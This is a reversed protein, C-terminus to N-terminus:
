KIKDIVNKKFKDYNLNKIKTPITMDVPKRCKTVLYPHSDIYTVYNSVEKVDNTKPDVVTEKEVKTYWVFSAKACLGYSASNMLNPIVKNFSPNEEDQVEKPLCLVVINAGTKKHLYKCMNWISDHGNKAQGWLNLNMQDKNAEVMVYKKLLYELQTASDFVITSYAVPVKNGNEDVTYGKEIDSLIEDVEEFASIEVVQINERNATPISGTGGELIDLLLLPKEKTKPFTSALATKGSGSDGYIVFVGDIPMEAVAKTRQTLISM